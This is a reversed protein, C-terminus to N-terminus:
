FDLGIYWFGLDIGCTYRSINFGLAFGSTRGYTFWYKGIWQKTM